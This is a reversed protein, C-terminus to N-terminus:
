RLVREAIRTLGPERGLGAGRPEREVIVPGDTRYQVRRGDVALLDTGVVSVLLAVGDVADAHGDCGARLSRDDQVQVLGGAVRCRLDARLGHDVRHVRVTRGRRASWSRARRPGTSAPAASM